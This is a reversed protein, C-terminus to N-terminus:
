VVHERVVIQDMDITMNGPPSEDVAPRVSHREEEPHPLNEEVYVSKIGHAKLPTMM